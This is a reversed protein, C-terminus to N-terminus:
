NLDSIQTSVCLVNCVQFSQQAKAFGNVTSHLVDLIASTPEDHLILEDGERDGFGALEAAKRTAERAARNWTAPVTLCFCLPNDKLLGGLVGDLHAFVHQKIAKLYDTTVQQASKGPPLAMVDSGLVGKLLADDFDAVAVSEDLRLKFWACKKDAARVDCGSRDEGGFKPNESAYAMVSPAKPLLAQNGQSWSTIVQPEKSENASVYAVGTATCGFDIGVFIRRKEFDEKAQKKKLAEARM